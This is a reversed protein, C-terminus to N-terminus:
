AIWDLATYLEVEQCNSHQKRQNGDFLKERKKQSHIACGDTPQLGHSKALILM